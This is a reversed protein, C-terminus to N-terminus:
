CATGACWIISCRAPSTCRWWRTCCSSCADPPRGQLGRGGAQEGAGAPRPRLARVAAGPLRGDRHVSLRQDADPVAAPLAARPDGARQDTQWGPLDAPLAPVPQGSRWALRIVALVFIVLGTTKHVNYLVNQLAGPGVAVMTIGAPVQAVLVLAAITWHLGISVSGWRERTNGRMGADRTGGDARWGTVQAVSRSVSLDRERLGAPPM